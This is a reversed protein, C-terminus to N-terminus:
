EEIQKFKMVSIKNGVYSTELIEINKLSRIPMTLKNIFETKNYMEMGVGDNDYLQYIQANDAFMFFLQIRRKQWDTIKSKSFYYIMMAYDNAQLEIKEVNSSKLIRVITDTVYYPSKVIFKIKKKSTKISFYCSDTRLHIPSEGENLVIIELNRGVLQGRNRADTFLFTYSPERLFYYALMLLIPILAFFVYKWQFGTTQIAKEINPKQITNKERFDNWDAAGTYRSLLNLMDIRPLKKNNLKMHTYFWKESVSSNVKALLDDQFYLIEQGKWNEIDIPVSPITQKLTEAIAKKLLLFYQIDLNDM